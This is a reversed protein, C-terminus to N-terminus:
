EIVFLVGGERIVLFLEGDDERYERVTPHHPYGIHDGVKTELPLRKGTKQNMFGPGVAVVTGFELPSRYEGGRNNVGDPIVIGGNVQEDVPDPRVVIWDSSPSLKM